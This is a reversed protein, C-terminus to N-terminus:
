QPPNFIGISTAPSSLHCASSHASNSAARLSPAESACRDMAFPCRTRFRCGSPPNRPDPLEGRVLAKRRSRRELEIHPAAALLAQTYPHSPTRLVTAVPGIEVIRGLYMVAVRDAIWAVSGLDHSIFIYTLDHEERLDALLQLVEEQLSVDLSAVPEDCLILPAKSALARAITVRQRQGGSLQTPLRDALEAGLGVRRLLEVAKPRLSQPIRLRGPAMPEAVCAWSSMRNNLASTPNQFILHSSGGKGFAPDDLNMTISGAATAVLGALAHATSSKGSGSEGIIALTEGRQVSFSVDDVARLAKRGRGYEVALNRVDVIVDTNSM